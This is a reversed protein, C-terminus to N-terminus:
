CVGRCFEGYEDASLRNELERLSVAFAAESGDDMRAFQTVVHSKLEDTSMTEVNEIILRQANSM